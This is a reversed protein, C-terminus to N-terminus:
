FLMEIYFQFPLIDIVVGILAATQEFRQSWDLEHDLPFVDSFISFILHCAVPDCHPFAFCDELMPHVCSATLDIESIRLLCEGLDIKAVTLTM